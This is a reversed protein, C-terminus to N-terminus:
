RVYRIIGDGFSGWHKGVALVSCGKLANTRGIGAQSVEGTVGPFAAAESGVKARPEIAEKVPVIRTEDGPSAILIDCDTIHEDEKVLAIAEEKNITLTGKAFKTVDGFKVEKVFFNGLELKM